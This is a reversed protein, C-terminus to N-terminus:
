ETVYIRRVSSWVAREATIFASVLCIAIVIVLPLSIMLGFLGQPLLVALSFLGFGALASWVGAMIWSRYGPKKKPMPITQM